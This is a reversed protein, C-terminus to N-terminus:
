HTTDGPKPPAKLDQGFTRLVDPSVNSRLVVQGAPTVAIVLHPVALRSEEPRGRILDNAEGVIKQIADVPDKAMGADPLGVLCGSPRAMRAHQGGRGSLAPKTEDSSVFSVITAKSRCQQWNRRRRARGVCPGATKCSIHFRMYCVVKDPSSPMLIHTRPVEGSDTSVRIPQSGVGRVKADKGSRRKLLGPEV